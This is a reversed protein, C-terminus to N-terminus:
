RKQPFFLLPYWSQRMLDGTLSPTTWEILKGLSNSSIAIASIDEEQATKLIGELANGHRVVRQIKAGVEALKSEVPGLKQNAMADQEAASLTLWSHDAYVWCLTCIEVGSKEMALKYIQEVVYNATDSGDYPILVRRFLYQCRLLLEEFMMVDLLQPRFIMLPISTKCAIERTTSGFLQENLLTKSVTGLLILDSQQKDATRLICDTINGMQVEIAVDLNSSEPMWRQIAATAAEVEQVELRPVGESDVLPKCYLFTVQKVGATALSNVCRALRHFGDSLDTCILLRQFM